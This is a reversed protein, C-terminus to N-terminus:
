VGSDIVFFDLNFSLGDIQQCQILGRGAVEPKDGDDDFGVTKELM